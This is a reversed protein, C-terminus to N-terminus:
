SIILPPDTNLAGCFYYTKHPCIGIRSRVSPILSELYEKNTKANITLGSNGGTRKKALLTDLTDVLQIFYAPCGSDSETELKLFDKEYGSVAPFNAKFEILCIREGQENHIVMDFEGSQGNKDFCPANKGSFRYTYKTPTEVSYYLKNEKAIKNFQEVFVFRLEQESVRIKGDERYQPFVIRSDCNSSFEGKGECQNNYVERLVDFTRDILYDMIIRINM